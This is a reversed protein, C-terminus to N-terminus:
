ILPFLQKLWNYYSLCRQHRLTSDMQLPRVRPPDEGLPIIRNYLSFRQTLILMGYM